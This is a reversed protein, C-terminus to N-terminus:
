AAQEKCALGFESYAASSVCIIHKCAPRVIDVTAGWEPQHASEDNFYITPHFSAMQRSGQPLATFGSNHAFQISHQTGSEGRTLPFRRKLWPEQNDYLANAYEVLGKAKDDKESQALAQVNPFFQCSWMIYGVVEWSTMMQRTKPVYLAKRLKFARLLYHMLWDQYDWEGGVFPRYPFPSISQEQTLGQDQWHFNTTKTLNRLWFMPGRDHAVIREKCLAIVRRRDLELQVARRLAALNSASVPQSNQLNSM